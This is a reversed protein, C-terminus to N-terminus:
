LNYHVHRRKRPIDRLYGESQDVHDDLNTSFLPQATFEPEENDTNGAKLIKLRGDDIQILAEERKLRAQASQGSKRLKYTHSKNGHLCHNAELQADIDQADIM